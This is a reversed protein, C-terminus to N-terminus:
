RCSFWWWLYVMDFDQMGTNWRRKNGKNFRRLEHCISTMNPPPLPSSSATEQVVLSYIVIGHYFSSDLVRQPFLILSPYRKHMGEYWNEETTCYLKKKGYNGKRLVSFSLYEILLDKYDWHLFIIRIAPSKERGENEKNSPHLNHKIDGGFDGKLMERKGGATENWMTGTTQRDTETQRDTDRLSDQWDKTTGQRGSCRPVNGKAEKLSHVPNSVFSTFKSRHKSAAVTLFKGPKNKM